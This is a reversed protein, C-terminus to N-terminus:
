EKLLRKGQEDIVQRGKRFCAQHAEDPSGLIDARILKHERLEGDVEKSIIGCLRFQGGENQPTSSILFGEYEISPAEAKAKDSGGGGFLRKLFSM